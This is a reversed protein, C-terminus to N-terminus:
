TRYGIVLGNAGPADFRRTEIGVFGAERLWTAYEKATYNRGWTEILMNLSMLAADVPGDKSDDVLLDCIVVRGGAALASFCKAIIARCDEEAWDLLIKSLLIADHGGPLAPDAFFDGEVLDIRASLGASQIKKRTLECVFPLDYVTAHLQSHRGCLTIDNAAGGGGVDLLKKVGSWDMAEALTWSTTISLAYMAEWFIDKLTPDESDFLSSQRDPDWTLPRNSYLADKLHMWAPYERRNAMAIWGGIYLPRGKVLHTEAMISNVYREGSRQLLGMAACATLLMDAPREAFGYHASCEDVRIGGKDSVHSFLDLEHAVGLTRAAWFGAVLAMLPKASQGIIPHPITQM